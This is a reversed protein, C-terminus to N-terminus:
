EGWGEAEMRMKLAKKIYGNISEGAVDAAAQITPYDEKRVEVQIRKMKQQYKKVARRQAASVIM